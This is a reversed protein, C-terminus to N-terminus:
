KVTMEKTSSKKLSTKRRKEAKVAQQIVSLSPNETMTLTQNYYNSNSTSSRDNHNLGSSNPREVNIYINGGTGKILKQTSTM